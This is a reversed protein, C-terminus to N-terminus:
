ARRPHALYASPENLLDELRQVTRAPPPEGFSGSGFGFSYSKLLRAPATPSVGNEEAIVRVPETFTVTQVQFFNAIVQIFASTFRNGLNFIQLQANEAFANRVDALEVKQSSARLPPLAQVSIAELLDTMRISQFAREANVEEEGSAASWKSLERDFVSTYEFSLSVRERAFGVFCLTRISRVPVASLEFLIEDFTQLSRHPGVIQKLDINSPRWYNSSILQREDDIMIPEETAGEKECILVVYDGLVSVDQLPVGENTVDPAPAPSSPDLGLTNRIVEDTPKGDPGFTAVDLAPNGSSSSPPPSVMGGGRGSTAGDRAAGTTGATSSSSGSSGGTTGGGSAAGGGASGAKRKDYENVLGGQQSSNKDAATNKNGGQALMAKFIDAAANVANQENSSAQQGAATAGASSAQIASQALKVVESLGSMDRFMNGNQIAALVGAMGTPDPLATPQQISVIPVSLQGPAIASDSQARSQAVIPAIDSPQIPIPSDQWNWFRTIDLKEASNSRGLVAEAFVGGSSLPVFEVRSQGIAIGRRDLFNKWEDDAVPDSSIKFALYNGVVRLPIPDVAQAVSIVQGNLKMSLNSLLGAIAATDLTRFVAQSYYLQHDMLEQKLNVDAASVNIQVVRTETAGKVITVAPLELPFVVSNRILTLTISAEIDANASSGRIAVRAIDGLTVQNGSLNAIAGGNRKYFVPSLSEGAASNVQADILKVDSPLFVSPSDPRVVGGGLANTLPLLQESWLATAIRRRLANVSVGVAGSPQPPTEAAAAPTASGETSVTNARSAGARARRAPRVPPGFAISALRGPNALADKIAGNVARFHVNPDPAIELMNLNVLADRVQPSLAADILAGRFRLLLDDKNFDVLRFPIFIVRDARAVSTETRFLQLVEYYQVTLAHMHNYNVVVRTSIEEHESQSVERV